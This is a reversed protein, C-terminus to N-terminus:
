KLMDLWEFFVSSSFVKQMYVNEGSKDMHTIRVADCENVAVLGADDTVPSFEKHAILYNIDSGAAFWSGKYCAEITILGKSVAKQMRMNQAATGLLKLYEADDIRFFERRLCYANGSRAEREKIFMMEGSGTVGLVDCTHKNSDADVVLLENYELEECEIKQMNPV